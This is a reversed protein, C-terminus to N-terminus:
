RSSQKRRARWVCWGSLGLAVLLTSPEPAATPIPNLGQEGTTPSPTSTTEPTTPNLGQPALTTTPTASLIRNLAPSLKPHYYAFRTPDLSQKWLLYAVMPETGGPDTKVAQWISSILAPTVRPHLVAKWEKPGSDIYRSWQKFDTVEAQTLAEHRIPSAFTWSGSLFIVGTLMVPLGHRNGQVHEILKLFIEKM